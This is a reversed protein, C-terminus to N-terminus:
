HFMCGHLVVVPIQVSNSALATINCVSASWVCVCGCGEFMPQKMWGDLKRCAEAICHPVWQWQWAQNLRSQDIHQETADDFSPAVM